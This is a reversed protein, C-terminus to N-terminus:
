GGLLEDRNRGASAGRGVVTATGLRTSVWAADDQGVGACSIHTQATRTILRRGRPSYLTDRQVPDQVALLVGVGASRLTPLGDVGGITGQSPGDTETRRTIHAGLSAHAM